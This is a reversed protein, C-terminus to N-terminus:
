RRNRPNLYKLNSLNSGIEEFFASPTYEGETFTRKKKKPKDPQKVGVQKQIAKISPGVSKIAKMAPQDPM